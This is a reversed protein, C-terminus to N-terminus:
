QPHGDEKLLTPGEGSIIWPRTDYVAEGNIDLWKGINLLTEVQDEPITGDPKPSVCLLLCGNKSIIDMLMEVIAKASRSKMGNYFWGGLPTDTLWPDQRSVTSRGKEYDM